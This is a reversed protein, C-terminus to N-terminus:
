CKHKKNKMNRNDLTQTININYLNNLNTAGPFPFRLRM